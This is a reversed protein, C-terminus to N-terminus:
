GEKKEPTAPEKDKAAAPTAKGRTSPPLKYGMRPNELYHEPVRRKSGDAGVATVFGDDVM